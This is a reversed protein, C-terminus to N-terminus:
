NEWFVPTSMEYLNQDWEFIIQMFHCVKNEPFFLFFTKLKDDASDTWLTSFTLIVSRDSHIWIGYRWILQTKKKNTQKKKTQKNKKLWYSSIKRIEGHFCLNHTIMLLAEILHKQHTSICLTMHLFLFFILISVGRPQPMARSLASKKLWFTDINKKNRLSFM